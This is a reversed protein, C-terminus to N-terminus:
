STFVALIYGLAIGMVLYMYIDTRDDPVIKVPKMGAFDRMFANSPRKLWKSGKPTTYTNAEANPSKAAETPKEAIYPKYWEAQSM